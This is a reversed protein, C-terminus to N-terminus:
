YGDNQDANTIHLNTNIENFPIPLKMARNLGAEDEPFYVDFVKNDQAIRQNHINVVNEVFYDKGRRRNRFWDDGEGFLEFQYEKMIKIRFEFKSIGNYLKPFGTDGSNQARQLVENVYKEAETPGKVENTIEALMLLLEAYRFVVFNKDDDPLTNYPNKSFFKNLYAFATTSKSRTNDAPYVLRERDLPGEDGFRDYQSRITEAYRPDNIDFADVVEPNVTINGLSRGIQGDGPTFTKNLELYREQSAQIEFISENNNRRTSPHWLDQYTPMLSYENSQYVTDAHALAKEWMDQTNTVSARHLYVKALLFHASSSAPRGKQQRSKNYLYSTALETDKIIQNFVEDESSLPIAYNEPTSSALRLPVRGFLRVLYFYNFARLFYAEGLANKVREVETGEESIDWYRTINEIVNNCRNISEYNASWFRYLHKDNAPVFMQVMTIRDAESRSYFNGSSLYNLRLFSQQFYGQSTLSEYAGSVVTEINNPSTYIEENDLYPTDETICGFLFFLPLIYLIYKKM